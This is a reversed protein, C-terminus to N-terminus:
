VQTTKKIAYRVADRHPRPVEAEDFVAYVDKPTVKESRYQQIKAVIERLIEARSRNPDVVRPETLDLLYAWPHTIDGGLERMRQRIDRLEKLKAEDRWFGPDDSIAYVGALDLLDEHEDPAPLRKM